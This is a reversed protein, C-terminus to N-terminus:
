DVEQPDGDVDDFPSKLPNFTGAQQSNKPSLVPVGGASPSPPSEPEPEGKPEKVGAGPPNENDTNESNNIMEEDRDIEKFASAQSSNVGGTQAVQTAVGDINPQTGTSPLMPSASGAALGQTVGTSPMTDTPMKGRKTDTLIDLEKNPSPPNLLNDINVPPPDAVAAGQNAVAAGQNTVNTPPPANANSVMQIMEADAQAEELGTQKKGRYAARINEELVRDLNRQYMELEKAKAADAQLPLRQAAELKKYDEIRQRQADELAQRSAKGARSFRSGTVEPLPEMRRDDKADLNELRQFNEEMEQERQQEALERQHIGAMQTKDRLAQLMQEQPSLKRKLKGSAIYRGLNIFPSFLDSASQYRKPNMVNM